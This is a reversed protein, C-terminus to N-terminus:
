FEMEFEQKKSQESEEKLKELMRNMKTDKKPKKQEIVPDVSKDPNFEMILEEKPPNKEHIYQQVTTDSKFLGFESKLLSKVNKKEAEIEEKTTEKRSQKDWEINPNDIHGHMRMYVRFGTGDDIIEGFESQKAQKLDKFRFGFRYDVQNDFTHKGSVEVDLASSAISMQPITLVSNKIILTNKLQDFKLDKLKNGFADINAKGIVVKLSSSRLSEIITNFTEVNKLRGNDIQIGINAVIANSIIGSRLDFPAEFTVSAKAVGEINSSKIVTQKFDDWEKFLPTFNINDSVIQSSVLFIEPTKENITLSGYIDAGPTKLSIKAFHVNRKDVSMNGSIENFSHGDYKLSGIEVFMNGSIDDPLIYARERQVIDEKAETGLDELHIIKSSISVDAILSGKKSIYESLNKFIGNLNFDSRKVRVKVNDIGAENGNLYLRGAINEFVRKDDILQLNVDTLQITGDCKQIEYHVNEEVTEGKVIFDTRVDLQGDLRDINPINFLSHIVALNLAGDANGEYRPHAFQTLTLNGKFPGGKTSFSINKLTLHEKEAGGKNSYAGDVHVNRIEIGSAPEKLYGNKIGFSCDVDVPQVADNTGKIFLDFLLLGSGSFKKVNESENMALKNAADEISINKGKIRFQFGDNKVNGLFDFPLGSIYITSQPIDVTSTRKDVNVSVNLQAPKDSVLNIKGSRAAIIHLDSKTSATFASTNFDGELSMYNIKTLYEQDVARNVYSFYFDEFEVEELKLELGVSELTDTKEAFIDFNNKGEEDVKLKLTGPSVEISKLTYNERWIDMPNFKLRIRESYILTDLETSGEFSDQIFVDKFDVSLSPFSGWFALDVDSVSVKAKLQKNVEDIVLGCIDDKFVYLLVTILLVLGLIIGTFWKAIRLLRRKSM